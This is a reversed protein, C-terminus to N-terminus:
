SIQDRVLRLRNRVCIKVHAPTQGEEQKEYARLALIVKSGEFVAFYVRLNINGLIGGKEKLEYFDEVKEIDQTQSKTPDSEYALEEFLGIVHAYQEDTLLKRAEKEVVKLYALKWQPAKSSPNGKAKRTVVKM